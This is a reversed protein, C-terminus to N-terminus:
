IRNLEIKALQLQHIKIESKQGFLEQWCIEDILAERTVMKLDTFTFINLAMYM